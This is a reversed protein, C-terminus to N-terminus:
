RSPWCVYQFGCAECRSTMDHQPLPMEQHLAVPWNQLDRMEDLIQLLDERLQADWEIRFTQSAYRLLGYPPPTGTVEEILLCYAALQMVDSLYPQAAKRLPKVEVPVIGTSTRLIYDPKGVLQYKPSVLNEAIEQWAGSDSYVVTARTVPLGAKAANRGSSQVLAVGAVLCVLAAVIM